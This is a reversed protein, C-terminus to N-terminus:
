TPPTSCTCVGVRTRARARSCVCVCVCVCVFVFVCVCVFLCVFLCVQQREAFMKDLKQRASLFNEPDARQTEHSVAANRAAAFSSQHHPSQPAAFTPQHHPSAFSPQHHPAAFSSQHHPTQPANSHTPHSQAGWANGRQAGWQQQQQQHPQQQHPPPQQLQAHPTMGALHPLPAGTMPDFRALPQGTYRVTTTTPLPYPSHPDNSLTPPISFYAVIFALSTAQTFHTCSLLAPARLHMCFVLVDACSFLFSVFPLAASVVYPDFQPVPALPAGTMPDFRAGPPVGVAATALPMGTLADFRPGAPAPAPAPTEQRGYQGFKPTSSNNNNSQNPFKAQQGRPPMNQTTAGAASYRTGRRAVPTNKKPPGFMAAIKDQVSAPPPVEVGAAPAISASGVLDTEVPHAPHQHQQQQQQFHHRAAAVGSVVAAPQSSSSFSSSPSPPQHLPQLHKPAPPKVVAATKPADADAKAKAM